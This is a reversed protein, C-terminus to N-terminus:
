IELSFIGLERVTREPFICFALIVRITLRSASSLQMELLIELDPVPSCISNSERCMSQNTKNYGPMGHIPFMNNEHGDNRKTIM